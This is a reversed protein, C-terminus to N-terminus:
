VERSLPSSSPTKFRKKPKSKNSYICYCPQWGSCIHSGGAVSLGSYSVRCCVSCCLCSVRDSIYVNLLIPYKHSELLMERIPMTNCAVLPQDAAVLGSRTRRVIARSKTTRGGSDEEAIFCM